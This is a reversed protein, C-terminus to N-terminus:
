CLKKGHKRLIFLCLARYPSQFDGNHSPIQESCGLLSHRIRSTVPHFKCTLSANFLIEWFLHIPRSPGTDQGRLYTSGTDQCGYILLDLIKVGMSGTDQCGYIWYRSVGSM